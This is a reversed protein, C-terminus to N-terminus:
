PGRFEVVSYFANKGSDDFNLHPTSIHMIKSKAAEAIKWIFGKPLQIKTDQEDGTIPNKFSEVQVNMVDPISFSSKKGDINVRIDAFQPDLLYKITGAFLAFPGEGKAQGSFINTCANRQDKERANKAVFMQFTGNGEHIAKPWSYAIVVDLGDLKVDGYNGSQIHYLVLARCFGGTPFGSFNCPCGYDCNCAEIYDAKFHWKPIQQESITHSSSSSSVFSSPSSTTM